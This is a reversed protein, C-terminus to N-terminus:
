GSSWWPPGSGGSSSHRVVLLEGMHAAQSSDAASFHIDLVCRTLMEELLRNMLYGKIPPLPTSTFTVCAGQLYHGSKYCKVTEM